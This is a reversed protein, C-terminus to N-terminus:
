DECNDKIKQLDSLARIILSNFFLEKSIDLSNCFSEIRDHTLTSITLTVDIFELEEIDPNYLM